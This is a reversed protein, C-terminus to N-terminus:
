VIRRSLLMMCLMLIGAIGSGAIPAPASYIEVPTEIMSQIPDSRVLFVADNFDDDSGGLRNLDEFGM